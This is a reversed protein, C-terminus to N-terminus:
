TNNNNNNNNNNIILNSDNLRYSSSKFQLFITRYEQESLVANGYLM